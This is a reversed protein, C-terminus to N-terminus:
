IKFDPKINLKGGKMQISIDEINLKLYKRSINIRLDRFNPVFEIGNTKKSSILDIFDEVFEQKEQQAAFNSKSFKELEWLSLNDVVFALVM